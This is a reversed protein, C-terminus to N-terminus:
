PKQRKVAEHYTKWNEVYTSVLHFGVASTLRRIVEARLELDDTELAKFFFEQSLEILSNRRLGIDTIGRLELLSRRFQVKNSLPEAEESIDRAQRPKTEEAPVSPPTVEQSFVVGGSLNIKQKIIQKDFIKKYILNIKEM